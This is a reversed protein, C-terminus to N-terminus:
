AQRASRLHHKGYHRCGTLVLNGVSSQTGKLPIVTLCRFRVASTIWKGRIKAVLRGTEDYVVNKGEGGREKGHRPGAQTGNGYLRSGEHLREQFLSMEPKKCRSSTLNKYDGERGGQDILPTGTHEKTFSICKASTNREAAANAQCFPVETDYSKRSVLDMVAGEDIGFVVGSEGIERKAQEPTLDKGGPDPPLLQLYAELEDGSIRVRAAADCLLEQQSPAIKLNCCSQGLAKEM